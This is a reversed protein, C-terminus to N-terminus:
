LAGAVMARVVDNRVAGVAHRAAVAIIVINRAPFPLRPKKSRSSTKTSSKIPTLMSMTSGLM